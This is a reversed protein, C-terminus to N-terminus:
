AAEYPKIESSSCRVYDCGYGDNYHVKYQGSCSDDVIVVGFDGVKLGMKRSPTM